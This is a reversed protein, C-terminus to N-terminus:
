IETKGYNRGQVKNKVRYSELLNWMLENAAWRFINGIEDYDISNIFLDPERILEAALHTAQYCCEDGCLDLLSTNEDFHKYLPNAGQNLLGKARKFDMKHVAIYLDLDVERISLSIFEKKKGRLIEEDSEDEFAWCAPSIESFPIDKVQIGKKGFLSLIHRANEYNKKVIQNFPEKFEHGLCIEWCRSIYYVPIPSGFWGNTIDVTLNNDYRGSELLNKVAEYFNFVVALVLPDTYVGLEMM